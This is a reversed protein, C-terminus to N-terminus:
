IPTAVVELIPDRPEQAKLLLLQPRSLRQDIGIGPAVALGDISDPLTVRHGLGRLRFAVQADSSLLYNVAVLNPRHAVLNNKGTKQGIAEKLIVAIHAEPDGTVSPVITPDYQDPDDGDIYIVLSSAPRVVVVPYTQRAQVRLGELGAEDLFPRLADDLFAEVDADSPLSFPMCYDHDMKIDDGVHGLVEELFLRLGFSKRFVYCEVFLKRGNVEVSLDPGPNGWRVETGVSCLHEAVQLQWILAWFVAFDPNELLSREGGWSPLSEALRLLEELRAFFSENSWTGLRWAMYHCFYPPTDRHRELLDLPFSRQVADYRALREKVRDWSIYREVLTRQAPVVMDATM